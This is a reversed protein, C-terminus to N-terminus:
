VKEIDRFSYGDMVAVVGNVLVQHQTKVGYFPHHLTRKGMYVGTGRGNGNRNREYMVTAYHHIGLQRMEKVALKSVGLVGPTTTSRVAWQWQRRPQILMGPVLDRVYM